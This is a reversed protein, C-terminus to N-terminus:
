DDGTLAELESQVKEYNEQLKSSLLVSILMEKRLQSEYIERDLMLDIARMATQTRAVNQPKDYLNAFFSQDQYIKKSLLELQAYYSPDDGIYDSIDDINDIGLDRLLSAIFEKTNTGPGGSATGPINTTGPSKLGVITNFSNQAVNRKAMVSRLDLIESQVTDKLLFGVTRKPPEHGYLNRSLSIIDKEMDSAAADVTFDIGDLTRVQDVFRSYHIDRNARESDASANCLPQLGSITPNDHDWNNNFVMCNENVFLEWRGLKDMEVSYSGSVNMTAVQRAMGLQNLTMKRERGAYESASVSRVNTGFWCYNQSPQYDKLAQVQMRQFDQQTELQIKADMLVGVAFMQHMGVASLQETMRMMANLLNNIFFEDGIWQRFQIFRNSIHTNIIVRGNAHYTEIIVGTDNCTAPNCANPRDSYCGYRHANASSSLYVNAVFLCAFSIVAIFIYAIKRSISNYFAKEVM